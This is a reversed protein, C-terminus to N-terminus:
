WPPPSTSVRACSIASAAAPVVVSVRTPWCRALTFAAVTWGVTHTGRDSAEEGVAPRVQRLKVLAFGPVM